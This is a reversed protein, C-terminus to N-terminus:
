DLDMDFDDATKEIKFKPHKDLFSRYQQVVQDSAKKGNILLEGNKHQLTYTGKKDILGAKDLGDVFTKYEKIETKAKEIEVRADALEKEINPKINKLEETMKKLDEGLKKM